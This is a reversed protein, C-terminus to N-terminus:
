NCTEFIADLIITCIFMGIEHDSTHNRISCVEHSRMEGLMLPFCAGVGAPKSQVLGLPIMKAAELAQKQLM